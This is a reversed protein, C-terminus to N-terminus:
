KKGPATIDTLTIDGKAELLKARLGDAREVLINGGARMTEVDIGYAVLTERPLAAIAKELTRAAELIDPDGTIDPKGLDARIVDAYAPNEKAQGILAVSAAGKGTLREKLAELAAKGGSKAFESVAGSAALAAGASLVNWLIVAIEM